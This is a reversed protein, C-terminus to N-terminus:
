TYVYKSYDEREGGALLYTNDDLGVMCHSKSTFPLQLLLFIYQNSLLLKSLGPWSVDAGMEFSEDDVLKLTSSLDTPDPFFKSGDYGGAM